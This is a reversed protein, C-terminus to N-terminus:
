TGGSWTLAEGIRLGTELMLVAIDRVPQPCAKLYDKEQKRSLVFDRVREGSLLRIRPVRQIDRWEQAPRLMRRLTALERNVTAPSVSARRDIVYSEIVSEDIRDIKADAIAPFELLRKLKSDYFEITRPKNEHRAKVFEIFRKGADKFLPALKRETLGVEGKALATRFAAEM